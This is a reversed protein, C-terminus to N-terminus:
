YDSDDPYISKLKDYLTNLTSTMLIPLPVIDNSSITNLLVYAVASERRLSPLMKM